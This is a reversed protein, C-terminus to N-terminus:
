NYEYKQAKTLRERSLNIKGAAFRVSIATKTGATGTEM